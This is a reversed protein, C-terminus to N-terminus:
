SEETVITFKTHTHWGERVPKCIFGRESTDAEISHAHPTDGVVATSTAVPLDDRLYLEHVHGDTALDGVIYKVAHEGLSEQYEIYSQESVEPEGKKPIDDDSQLQVGLAFIARCVAHSLHDDSRDGALYAYVHMLLHNLHDDIDILRWNNAGYKRAGHDHVKAAEFLARADILDFRVPAHSQGGGRENIVTPADPGVIGSIDSM